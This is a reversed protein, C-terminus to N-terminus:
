GWNWWVKKTWVTSYNKLSGASRSTNSAQHAFLKSWYAIGKHYYHYLIAFLSMYHLMSGHISQHWKQVLIDQILSGTTKLKRCYIVKYTKDVSPPWKQNRHGGEVETVDIWEAPQRPSSWWGSQHEAPKRTVSMCGTWWDAMKEAM